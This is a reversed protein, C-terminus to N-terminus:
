EGAVVPESIIKKNSSKEGSRPKNVRGPQILDIITSDQETKGYRAPLLASLKMISKDIWANYVGVDLLETNKEHVSIAKEEFPYAQDEIVLEYQELEEDNLNTPRESELLAVSFEYYIEAIYYTAAATVDGVQYDVLRTYADIASRMQVKKKRLNKKFPKVLAVKKFAELKPEALILAANAALFRTRDTRGDGGAADTAVIAKLEAIYKKHLNRSKYIESIKHRVEIAEEIPEPFYKVLKLYVRLANDQAEAKEYLEAAQSLAERRLADDDPNEKEIREFELASKKYKGDEKYVIALKKTIDKQLEHEPYRSRFGELVGSVQAWQKLLILSAAADYEATPRIKSDPAVKAVRLFHEAATKHDGLKRAQEGQKYVSAALNETLSVYSKDKRDTLALTEMYAQEADKYSATDFSAHAVVMWASRRLKKDADPYVTIVRRGYKIAQEYDELAYLDDVAAVLVIAAHKHAPFYDAFKLSTRIIERKIINRQSQDAVKLHERYAYVAAYGASSSEDHAPYNYATREYETAAGLFDKHELLLGALQNNLGPAEKEEPFSSLYERYWYIAEQYNEEKQKRLRKDQYLAHYHNALDILNSKLFALVTPNDNIDFFTWYNSDLSYTKSFDKKADVVLRPFGGKKYIEIIRINFYPSEKSVPNRDIYAQYSQAADSYRRKTLYYEGLHSYISAEYFRHGHKDFFEVISDAGGLYSFSLSIVRYTDDIRKREIKNEIDELDYGNDIKYDLMKIYDRLAEEYLEQKFFSWGQKYLALEYFESGEGGGIVAQYSEESDLFKKRTFFYEARRFQAEDIHRSQPYKKILLELTEMAAETEGTEEYARSLQYLVQDNREFLPYKKLLGKYLEIAEKAGAAQLDVTDEGTEAGAASIKKRGPRGLDIKKGARDSFAKESESIDAIPGGETAVSEREKDAVVPVFGTEPTQIATAQSASDIIPQMNDTDAVPSAKVAQQERQQPEGIDESEYEKQIKLDALRRLAEPTMETEPTEKLFAEYSAMAKDLSDSVKEEKVEFRVDNLSALTGETKTTACSVLMLALPVNITIIALRIIKQSRM